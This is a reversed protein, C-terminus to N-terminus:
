FYTGGPYNKLRNLYYLICYRLLKLAEDGSGGGPSQGPGAPPECRGRGWVGAAIPLSRRDNCITDESRYRGWFTGRM